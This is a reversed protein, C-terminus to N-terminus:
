SPAHRSLNAVDFVHKLRHADKNKGLPIGVTKPSICLMKDALLGSITPLEVTQDCTFLDGCAIRKTTGPYAPPELVADLIVFSDEASRGCQSDFFVKFSLIPLWPKTRHPRVECATFRPHEAAIREVVATLEERPVTTVIDVDISFRTPRDLLVLQSNGGKFRFALGSASLQAVLELCHVVLEALYAPAVGRHKEYHAPTFWAADGLLKM